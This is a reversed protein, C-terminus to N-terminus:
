KNKRGKKRLKTGMFCAIINAAPSPVRRLGKVSVIGLASSPLREKPVNDLLELSRAVLTNNDIYMVKCLLNNVIQVVVVIETEVDTDTILGGNQELRTTTNALSERKEVRRRRNEDVINIDQAVEIECLQVTDLARWIGEEYHAM